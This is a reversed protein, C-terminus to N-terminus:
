KLPEKIKKSKLIFLCYCQVIISCCLYGIAYMQILSIISYSNLFYFYIFISWLLGGIRCWLKRYSYEEKITNSEAFAGICTIVIFGVIQLIIYLSPLIIKSNNLFPIFLFISVFLSTEYYDAYCSIDGSINFFVVCLIVYLFLPNYFSLTIFAGMHFLKSIELAYKNKFQVLDVNDKLDDYIKASLGALFALTYM